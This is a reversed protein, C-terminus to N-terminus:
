EVSKRKKRLLELMKDLKEISINEDALLVELMEVPNIPAGKFVETYYDMMSLKPAYLRGFVKGSRAYGDCAILENELMSNLLIHISNEKWTKGESMDLIDSRSLPTNARWMVQLIELQSPTIHYKM